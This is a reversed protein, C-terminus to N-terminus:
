CLRFWRKRTWQHAGRALQSSLLTVSPWRRFLGIAPQEDLQLNELEARDTSIIADTVGAPAGAATMGKALGTLRLETGYLAHVIAINVALATWFCREDYHTVLTSSRTDQILQQPNRRWRLALPNCRMVAGNGASGEGFLEKAGIWQKESALHVPEGAALLDIVRSTQGGIGRGNEGRWQILAQAFRKASFGDTHLLADALVVTQALDDDWPRTREKPDIELLGNPHHRRIRDSSWGEVPLGLCNGAACGLLTGLYRDGLGEDSGAVAESLLRIVDDM